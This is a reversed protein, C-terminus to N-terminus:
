NEVKSLIIDKESNQTGKYSNNGEKHLNFTLLEYKGEKPTNMILQFFLRETNRIDRYFFSVQGTFLDKGDQSLRVQSSNIHLIMNHGIAFYNMEWKGNLFSQDDISGLIKSNIELERVRQQSELLRRDTERESKIVEELEKHLRTYKSRLDFFKLTSINGDKTITFFASNGIKTVYANFLVFLTKVVPLILTIAISILFPYSFSHCKSVQSIILESYSKFGLLPLTEANYWILGLPIQWNWFLWSLIFSFVFPNTLREKITNVIENISEM